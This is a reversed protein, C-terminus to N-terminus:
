INKIGTKLLEDYCTVDPKEDTAEVVEETLKEEL